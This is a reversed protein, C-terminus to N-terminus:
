PIKSNPGFLIHTASAAFGCLLYFILYKVHGMLDEVNDGFIWLYLMNGAIHMLGGHMFMATLLTLYIPTPGPLQPPAVMRGFRDEMWSRILDVGHTIEYPVVSFGYTFEPHLAQYIFVLVNIAILTYNIVPTISRGSNDDGLPLLM